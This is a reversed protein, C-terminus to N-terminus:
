AEECSSDQVEIGELECGPDIIYRLAKEIGEDGAMEQTAEAETLMANNILYNVGAKRVADADIVDVYVTVRYQRPLGM